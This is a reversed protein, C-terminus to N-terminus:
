EADAALVAEVHLLDLLDMLLLTRTASLAALSCVLAVDSQLDTRSWIRL